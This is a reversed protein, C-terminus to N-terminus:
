LQYIYYIVKEKKFLLNNNLLQSNPSSDTSNTPSSRTNEPSSSDVPVVLKTSNSVPTASITCCENLQSCDMCRDFYWAM